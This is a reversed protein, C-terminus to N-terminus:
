YTAGRALAERYVRVYGAHMYCSILNAKLQQAAFRPLQTAAVNAFFGRSAEKRAIAIWTADEDPRASVSFQRTADNRYITVTHSM